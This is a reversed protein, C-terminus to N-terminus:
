ETCLLPMLMVQVLDGVYVIRCNMKNAGVVRGQRVAEASQM